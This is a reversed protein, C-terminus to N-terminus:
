LDVRAINILLRAQDVSPAVDKTCAGPVDKIEIGCRLLLTARLQNYADAIESDNFALDTQNPLYHKWLIWSVLLDPVGAWIKKFEEGRERPPFRRCVEIIAVAEAVTLPSKSDLARGIGGETPGDGSYRLVTDCVIGTENFLPENRRHLAVCDYNGSPSALDGQSTYYKDQYWWDASAGADQFAKASKQARIPESNDFVLCRM